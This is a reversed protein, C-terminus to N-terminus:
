LDGSLLNRLMSFPSSEQLSPITFEPSFIGIKLMERIQKAKNGATSAALGFAPGISDARIHPTQSVDFLFNMQGAAYVIGAAWTNIKGSVLPSPRKRALAATIKHCVDSYEENLQERCFADTLATIQNYRDEMAQPVKYPDKQKQSARKPKSGSPSAPVVISTVEAEEMFRYWQQYNPYLPHEPDNVVQRVQDRHKKLRQVYNDDKQLHMFVMDVISPLHGAATLTESILKPPQGEQSFAYALLGLSNLEEEINVALFFLDCTCGPEACFYEDLEYLRDPVFTHGSIVLNRTESNAQEEFLLSFPIILM